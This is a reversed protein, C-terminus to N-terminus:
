YIAEERQVQRKPKVTNSSKQLVEAVYHECLTAPDYQKMEKNLNRVNESYIPNGLVEEVAKKMQEAKPTETQLNIGLKFFGIRANIENKGEHVGAVVLPLNHQIGLMVGGYGGNTIYLHAYPMVDGFPIFDEIIINDQSYKAQLEKTGTGGTTAVVLVDTGKFAELTPVIIKNVDKEVTGQTVVIVKKYNLLRGDFWPTTKKNASYPLLPGIFRINKNLDSRYYEFGPTGSQLVLTSKRVLTDFLNGDPEVGYKALMEKM